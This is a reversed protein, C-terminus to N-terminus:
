NVLTKKKQCFNYQPLPFIIALFYKQFITLSSEDSTDKEIRKESLSLEVIKKKRRSKIYPVSFILQILKYQM